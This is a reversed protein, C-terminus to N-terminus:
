VKRDWLPQYIRELNGDATTLSGQQSGKGKAVQPKHSGKPHGCGHGQVRWWHSACSRQIHHKKTRCTAWIYQKHTHPLGLYLTLCGLTLTLCGLTSHSAVWPQTNPLGLYLTLCVLTSHSAVWPQTHPLGLNLTLCGLTSHSAVWPLTHPLGLNLTLCGLTTHPLGVVPVNITIIWCSPLFYFSTWQQETVLLSLHKSKPLLLAKDAPRFVAPLFSTRQVDKRGGKHSFM